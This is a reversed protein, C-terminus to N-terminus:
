KTRRQTSKNSYASAYSRLLTNWEEVWVDESLDEIKDLGGHEAALRHVLNEKWNGTIKKEYCWEEFLKKVPQVPEEMDFVGDEFKSNPRARVEVQRFDKANMSRDYYWGAAELAEHPTAFVRDAKLSGDQNLIYMREWKGDYLLEPAYTPSAQLAPGITDLIYERIGAGCDCGNAKEDLVLRVFAFTGPANYAVVLTLPYSHCYRDNKIAAYFNILCENGDKAPEDCKWDGNIGSGKPLREMLYDIEDKYTNM